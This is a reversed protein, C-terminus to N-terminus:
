CYDYLDHNFVRVGFYRYDPNFITEINKTDGIFDSIVMNVLVDIGRATAKSYHIIENLEGEWNTYKQVRTSLDYDPKHSDIFDRAALELERTHILANM